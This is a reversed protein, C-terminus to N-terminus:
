SAVFLPDQDLNLVSDYEDTSAEYTKMVFNDRDVDTFYLFKGDALQSVVYGRAVADGSIIVESVVLSTGNEDKTTVSEGYSYSKAYFTKLFGDVDVSASATAAKALTTKTASANTQIADEESCSVFVTSVAFIATLAIFNM